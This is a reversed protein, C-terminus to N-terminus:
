FLTQFAKILEFYPTYINLRTMKDYNYTLLRLKWKSNICIIHLMNHIISLVRCFHSARFVNTILGSLVDIVPNAVTDAVFNDVRNTVSDGLTAITVFLTVMTVFTFVPYQLLRNLDTRDLSKNLDWHSDFCKFSEMMKILGLTMLAM